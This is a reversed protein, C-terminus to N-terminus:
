NEFKINAAKIVKAYSATDARILAAFQEPNSYFLSLGQALLKEKFDSMAVYKGIEGAMKDIIAKQTGAPTIVGYWVGLSDLGPLGAEAFTPVQPLAPLRSEGSIAIAKVKNAKIQPIATVTTSFYMQVQGGILDTLAPGAGKYPVHQTKIGAALNLLEHALHQPGGAGPTAYNLQEPKSKAYAILEKLDKVPLSPNVLLIFATRAFTAVPALDKIPDYPAPILQPVLTLSGAALMITYGDNPSKVLAETGIFTNGGPRNDVVVPQGWSETLKQGVLHALPTTTGGPPYPVIFRITKNPYAQQAAACSACAILVGASLLRMAATVFKM